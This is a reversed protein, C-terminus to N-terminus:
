NLYFGILTYSPLKSSKNIRSVRGDIICYGGWTTPEVRSDIENKPDLLSEQTKKQDLVIQLFYM